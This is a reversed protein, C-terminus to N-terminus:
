SKSPRGPHRIRLCNRCPHRNTPHLELPDLQCTRRHCVTQQPHPARQQGLRHHHHRANSHPFGTRQHRQGHCLRLRPCATRLPYHPGLYLQRLNGPPRFRSRRLPRRRAMPDSEMSRRTYQRLPHYRHCHRYLPHPHSIAYREGIAIPLKRLIILEIFSPLHRASALTIAAVILANCLNQLTIPKILGTATRDSVNWLTVRDLFGLAPIAEKWIFWLGILLTFGAGIRLLKTTNENLSLYSIEEPEQIDLRDSKELDTAEALAAQEQREKVRRQFETRRSIFRIARISLAEIGVITITIAISQTFWGATRLATYHFGILSMLAIILPIGATALLIPIRFRQLRHDPNTQQLAKLLRSRPNLAHLATISLFIQTSILCIRELWNIANQDSIFHLLTTTWFLPHTIYIIRRLIRRLEPIASEEWEFHVIALGDKRLAEYTYLHALLLLSTLYFAQAAALTLRSADPALQLQISFFLLALPIPLSKILSYLLEEATYSLRDNRIKRMNTAIITIRKRCIVTVLLLLLETLLFILWHLPNFKLARATSKTEPPSFAEKLHNPLTRLAPLLNKIQPAPDSRVWLIYEAIENSFATTRDILLRVATDLDALLTLYNNYELMLINLQEQQATLYTTLIAHVEEKEDDSLPHQKLLQDVANSLPRIATRQDDLDLLILQVRAMEKKLQKLTVRHSATDPLSLQERRLLQAIAHTLGVAELRNQLERDRRSIAEIQQQVEKLTETSRKITATLGDAGSRRNALEANKEAVSLIVPHLNLAQKRALEARKASEDSEQQRRNDVEQQLQDQMAEFRNLQQAAADQRLTLLNRYTEFTDIELQWLNCASEQEQLSAQHLLQAMRLSLHPGNETPPNGKKQLDLLRKKADALQSPLESRKRILEQIEQELRALQQRALDTETTIAILKQELKEKTISPPIALAEGAVSSNRLQQLQEIEQPAQRITQNIEIERTKYEAARKQREKLDFLQQALRSREEASLTTDSQIATELQSTLEPPLTQAPALTAAFILLCLLPRQLQKKM